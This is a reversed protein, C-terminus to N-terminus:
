KLHTGFFHVCAVYRQLWLVQYINLPNCQIPMRQLTDKQGPLKVSLVGSEPEPSIPEIGTQPVSAHIGVSTPPVPYKLYNHKVGYIDVTTSISVKLSTAFM